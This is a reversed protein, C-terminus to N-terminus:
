RLHIRVDALRTRALRDAVTRSVNRFFAGLPCGGGNCTPVRFLCRGATLPGEVATYIELLTITRAPRALAYGGGPGRVSRVLGAKELRAMVKALHAASAGLQRAIAATTLRGEARALLLAAHLALTSSESAHILNPM